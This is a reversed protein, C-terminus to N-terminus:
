QQGEARPPAPLPMWHTPTIQYDYGAWTWVGDPNYEAEGVQWYRDFPSQGYDLARM